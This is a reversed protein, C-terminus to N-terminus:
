KDPWIVLGGKIQTLAAREPQPINKNRSQELIDPWTLAASVFTLGAEGSRFRYIGSTSSAYVDDEVTTKVSSIQSCLKHKAEMIAYRNRDNEDMSSRRDLAKQYEPTQSLQNEVEGEPLFKGSKLCMYSAVRKLQNNDLRYVMLQRGQTATLVNGYRDTAINKVSGTDYGEPYAARAIFTLKGTSDIGFCKISNEAVDCAFLYKSDQSVAMETFSGVAATTADEALAQLLDGDAVRFGSIGGGGVVHSVYIFGGSPSM